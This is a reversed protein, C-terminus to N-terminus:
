AIILNVCVSISSIETGGHGFIFESYDAMDDLGMLNLVIEVVLWITLKYLLRHWQINM